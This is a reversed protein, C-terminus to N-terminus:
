LATQSEPGPEGALRAPQRLRWNALPLITLSLLFLLGLMGLGFLVALLSLGLHTMTADLTVTLAGYVATLASGNWLGHLGLSAALALALRGYRKELRASAYGWGMIASATIHMLSSAGRVALGVGLMGATGSAYSLGELLGFGAGCLAGLAFGEAPSRLRRGLFLVVLPKALEEILPGIGALFTLAALFVLPDALYPALIELLAETSQATEIQAQVRRFADMLEPRVLLAFGGALAIAGYEGALALLPGGVMGFGLASWARRWSGAPLGGIGIWALGAVPLAAGLLFFPIGIVWGLDFLLDLGGAITLIGIWAIGVVAVQWLRIVPIAAPHVELGRQRRLSYVLVPALLGACFAMSVAELIVAAFATSTLQGATLYSFGNFIFLYAARGLLGLMGLLSLVLLLTTRRRDRSDPAPANGPPLQEGASTEAFPIDM